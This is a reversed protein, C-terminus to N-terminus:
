HPSATLRTPPLPNITQQYAGITWAGAVPRPVGARDLNLEKIGLSTLNAGASNGPFGVTPVGVNLFAWPDPFVQYLSHADCGCLNRWNAFASSQITGSGFQWFPNGGTLDAYANYDITKYSTAHYAQIAQDCTELINNEVTVNTMFNLGLCGGNKSLHTGIITNNVITYGNGNGLSMQGLVIDNSGIIMNNFIFATGTSDTWPTSTGGELFVWSTVNQGQNGDFL